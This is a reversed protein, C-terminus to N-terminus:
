RMCVYEAACKGSLPLDIKQIGILALGLLAVVHILLSVAWATTDGALPTKEEGTQEQWRRKVSELVAM